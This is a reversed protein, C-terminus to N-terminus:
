LEALFAQLEEYDGSMKVAESPRQDLARLSEPPETKVGISELQEPFKAPHATETVVATTESPHLLLYRRLAAWAVAGHPELTVGHQEYVERITAMTLNDSVSIGVSDRRLAGMDPLKHITGDREIQGGYLDFLRRLNSPNGVNMASSICAKSPRIPRYLGTELFVPFEDNENTAVIIREIPKGMRVAIFDATVNGFNGSAVSDIVRQGKEETIQCYSYLHYGVQPFLRCWNISNASTLSKGKLVRDEFARIANAQLQDFKADTEIAIVNGGLTNMQKAQRVSVETKPYLVVVKLGDLGSFANAIAGGTDGSTAVLIIREQDEEKAFYQMAMAMFRAAFDKFSATPGRDLRILYHRDNVREIPVEFDYAEECMQYLDDTPIEERLFRSLVAFAVEHYPRKRLNHIEEETIQPIESPMYLGGDPAQGQFLVEKFTSLPAKGRTSYYLVKEMNGGPKIITGNYVFTKSKM